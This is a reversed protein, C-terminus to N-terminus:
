GAPVAEFSQSGSCNIFTTKYTFVDFKSDFFSMGLTGAIRGPEQSTGTVKYTITRASSGVLQNVAVGQTAVNEDTGITWPGSASFLELSVASRYGGGNEACFVPVMPVKTIRLQGDVATLEFDDYAGETGMRGVWRDSTPPAPPAPDSVPPTPPVGASGDGNGGTSPSPSPAPSPAPGDGSPPQPAAAPIRLTLTRRATTARGGPRRLRLTITARGRSRGLAALAAADFRLAITTVSRKPLRVSRTAITRGGATVTAAGRLAYPNPNAADVSAVGAASVASAHPALKAPAATATAPAALAALLVLLVLRRM